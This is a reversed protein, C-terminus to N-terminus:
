LSTPPVTFSILYVLYWRQNDSAASTKSVFSDLCRCLWVCLLRQLQEAYRGLAAYCPMDWVQVSDCQHDTITITALLLNTTNSYHM